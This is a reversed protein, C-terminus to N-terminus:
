RFLLTIVHHDPPPFPRVYKIEAWLCACSYHEVNGEEQAKIDRRIRSVAGSEAHISLLIRDVRDDQEIDDSNNAGNDLITLLYVNGRVRTERLYKGEKEKVAESTM